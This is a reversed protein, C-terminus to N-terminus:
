GNWTLEGLTESQRAAQLQELLKLTKLDKRITHRVRVLLGRLLIAMKGQPIRLRWIMNLPLRRAKEILVLTGLDLMVLEDEAVRHESCVLTGGSVRWWWRVSSKLPRGCKGCSGMAPLYGMIDLFRFIFLLAANLPNRDGALQEVGAKLLLFLEHQPEGEPAMELVLESILAAYGWREVDMRLTLNPEILKCSDVWILSGRERYTLDVLSCPEFVHAFRKRSRRAGKAIGRLRGSDKTYFDVLRDSEGYDKTQLIFAQTERINM